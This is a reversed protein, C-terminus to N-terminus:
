IKGKRYCVLGLVKLTVWPIVGLMVCLAAALLGIQHLAFMILGQGAHTVEVNAM